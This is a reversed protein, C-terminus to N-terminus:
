QWSQIGVQNTNGVRFELCIIIALELNWGLYYQWSKIRFQNNTGVRFELSFMIAMELNLSFM